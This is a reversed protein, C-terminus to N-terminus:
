SAPCMIYMLLSDSACRLFSTLPNRFLANCYVHQAAKTTDSSSSGAATGASNMKSCSATPMSWRTCVASTPRCTRVTRGRHRARSGPRIRATRAMRANGRSLTPLYHFNPHAQEISLFEDRYYFGSEHRTGYVLWFEHGQNRDSQAFLWHVIGRIPAIGTGTAIFVADHRPERLTFMGHPGHFQVTAGVELDCLWNSLFGQEIRNLCLEFSPVARPMSAISYARTHVKGDPKPQQISVFQGPIFSFEGADVVAFELHKVQDSLSISRLLRATMLRREGPQRASPGPAPDSVTEPISQSVSILHGDLATPMM